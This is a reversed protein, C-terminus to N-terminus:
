GLSFGSMMLAVFVFFCALVMCLVVLGVVGFAFLAPKQAGEEQLTAPVVSEAPTIGNASLVERGARRVYEAPDRRVIEQLADAVRMDTVQAPSLGRITRERKKASENRLGALVASVDPMNDMLEGGAM